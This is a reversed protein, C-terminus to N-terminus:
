QITCQNGKHTEAKNTDAVGKRKSTVKPAPKPVMITKSSKRKSASFDTTRIVTTSTTTSSETTVTKRWSRRVPQKAEQVIKQEEELIQREMQERELKEKQEKSIREKEEREKEEQAVKDRRRKIEDTYSVQENKTEATPENSLLQDAAFKHQILLMIWTCMEELNNAKLQITEHPSRIEFCNSSGM